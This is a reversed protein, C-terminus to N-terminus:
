VKKGNCTVGADESHACDHVGWGSSSCESLAGENGSCCVDDLWIRGSGSEFYNGYHYAAASAGFLQQCVVNADSM